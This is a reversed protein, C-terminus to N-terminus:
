NSNTVAELSTTETPASESERMITISGNSTELDLSVNPPYGSNKGFLVGSLRRKSKKTVDIDGENFKISGNSTSAELRIPIRESLNVSIAGNSTDLKCKGELACGILQISGNSSDAHINGTSNEIIIKGNSTSLRLSGIAGKVEIKGNSTNITVPGQSQSTSVSGNSTELKLPWNAPVKLELSVSDSFMVAQTRRKIGITIATTTTDIEPFLTELAADAEEQTNGYAKAHAILEIESQDTPTVTISGNFTQVNVDVQSNIPIVTEFDRKASFNPLNCGSLLAIGITAVAFTPSYSKM